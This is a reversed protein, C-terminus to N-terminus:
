KVKVRVGESHSKFEPAYMSEISTIGASFDGKHVCIVPYEFVFTGKPLYNFYFHSALDKTSEYYGLQGQYKYQSIVNEPEFGSARMDKMHVYEMERDVRLEIRVKIRDGPKIETGSTISEMRDGKATRIVKYLTKNLKLPTESFSKVKDSQEFYQYYAAGWAISQNKNNVKITALEKTINEPQYTKKLYGTGAELSSIETKLNDKGILIDPLNSETVWASIGNQEGKILLAFIAAATSKSTKWHNTQKNKLLWIKMQDVENKDTSVDAFLEILLAHREIPLQHWYFGNGENWYIGLEDNRFSKERLSKVINLASKDDNRHLVLGIMAQMYLSRKNWYTKSQGFYYERAELAEPSIRVHSFFTKIYLYHISLEDLHDDNLNGKNRTVEAKLKNYKEALMRDMYLLASSIIKDMEANKADLVGLHRLHGLNEMVNQTTYIDDRGGPFWPFGGNSLQRESLRQITTSKDDAMKNIDFLIAINRKQESESLAQNVWPTEEMIANKLDQNKSLNSILADKDKMQWQDMVAKIRPHANAIGSSLANCYYKDILAQTGAHNVNALYPLAQIAYWVPNSTYEFTFRFDKKTQSNNNKFTNFTFTKTEKGRVWIPMSETVLISNTIVPFTNEEGDSHGGAEATIRYTVAQYKNEPIVMEWFVGASGSKELSIKQTVPSKVLDSTIDKMTIADFFKITSQGNLLTTTMNTVKASFTIKDGDRMFRPANPFLMLNKQTRVFREDYGYKFDKTHAFTMLRWKTLAENMNFSLIINGDNDTMLEPFFFVTEKLNQRLLITEEQKKATNSNVNDEEKVGTNGKNENGPAPPLDSAQPVMMDANEPVGTTRMAKSMMIDRRGGYYDMLPMLVPIIWEKVEAHGNTYNNYYRGNVMHFGPSEINVTAYSRPYYYTRWDHAIFQDLSADYMAAVLEAAIKDKNKGAIKIHYEEKSGPLTKDRFTEYTIDLQKNTWPVNLYYTENFTRNCLIYTLKINLGGRHSETIPLIIESKKNVKLTKEDIMRGDKEIIYHVYVPNEAAGLDIKVKQGPEASSENLKFFLFDSKPFIGKGFDTVIVYQELTVKQNSNDASEIDIKYVGPSLTKSLDISDQTLFDASLVQKDIPWTSFDTTPSSPFQPFLREVITRPLPYDTKGEWYKNVKVNNPAQLLAVKISGKVNIKQGNHNTASIRFTKSEAMDVNKAIDSSLTFGTYGASISNQVSRTEGRQDTVDVDIRYTFVPNSKKDVKKDPIANFDISFSGDDKTVTEGQTLIFEESPYPLRWWWTWSPYRVSRIVKYNVAAGDVLSGALTQAKGNIKIKDMLKYEGTLPEVVVEFTPRKYEEVNLSKQGYIGDQSQLGITYMGNLKGFPITFSGSLSGFENSILRQKSIEQYNADRFVVEVSTNPIISPVQNKDNKLLITKFYIIQGPRYISRDTFFEAFKHESNDQRMYNYHYQNLDLVDSKHSLVIKLNQDTKETVTVKGDINTTYDGSKIFEFRRNGPNYNQSLLSVTVGKLPAGISRDSVIIVRKEGTHYTTYALDSIHFIMYQFSQGNTLNDHVLLAYVGHKLPDMYLETKETTFEPNQKFTHNSSKLKKSKLLYNKIEQQDKNNWKESFDKELKIVEIKVSQINKHDIAYLLPKKSPYVQEGYLQLLPSKIDAIINKCKAAGKSDPYKKIAQECIKIIDTNKYNFEKESLLFNALDAIVDAYVDNDKSDEALTELSKKYLENKNELTSNRFVYELRRLDYDVLAIKNGNQLQTKIIDQYLSLVRYKQSSKDKTEITKSSFNKNASFYEDQDVQFSEANLGSYNDYASFFDFARDALVEYLTPRFITAERDYKNLIAKFEDVSINIATKNELSQLYWNEITSLFQQTTWTRFDIGKNGEIESRQSIEWRYNDFYRQYLEALYSAAIYKVPRDTNKIITEFREISNEIGKEDTQISLRAIYIISKAFQSDNKEDTAAKLIEEVKTLASKPLGENIYKEVETWARDFDYNNFNPQNYHLAMLLTIILSLTKM